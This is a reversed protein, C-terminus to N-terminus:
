LLEVAELEKIKSIVEDSTIKLEMCNEINEEYSKNVDFISVLIGKDNVGQIYDLSYSSGKLEKINEELVERLLDYNFILKEIKEMTNM